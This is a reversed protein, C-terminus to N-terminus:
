KRNREKRGRVGDKREEQGVMRGKGRWSIKRGYGKDAKTQRESGRDGGEKDTQRDRKHRGKKDGKRERM